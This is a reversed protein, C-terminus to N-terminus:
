LPRAVDAGESTNGPLGYSLLTVTFVRLCYACRWAQEDAPFLDEEGCYPCHFIEADPNV